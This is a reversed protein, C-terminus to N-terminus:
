MYRTYTSISFLVQRQFAFVTVLVVSEDFSIRFKVPLIYTCHIFIMVASVWINIWLQMNVKDGKLLLNM